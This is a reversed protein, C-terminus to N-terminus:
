ARTERDLLRCTVMTTTKAARRVPQARTERGRGRTSRLDGPGTPDSPNPLGETHRRRPRLGAGFLDAGPPDSPAAIRDSRDTGAPPRPHLGSGRGTRVLPRVPRSPHRAPRYAVTSPPDSLPVRPNPAAFTAPRDRRRHPPGTARIPRLPAARSIADTSVPAEASETGPPSRPEAGIYDARKGEGSAWGAARGASPRSRPAPGAATSPGTVEATNPRAPGPSIGHSPDLADPVLRRGLDPQDRDSHPPAAGVLGPQHGKAGPLVIM